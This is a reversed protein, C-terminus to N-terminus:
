LLYRRREERKVYSYSSYAPRKAPNLGTRDQGRAQTLRQEGQFCWDLYNSQSLWILHLGGGLFCAKGHVWAAVCMGGSSWPVFRPGWVLLRLAEFKRGKGGMETYHAHNDIWVITVIIALMLPCGNGLCKRDSSSQCALPKRSGRRTLPCHLFPRSRGQSIVKAM